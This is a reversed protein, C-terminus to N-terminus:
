TMDATGTGRGHRMSIIMMAIQMYGLILYKMNMDATGYWRM